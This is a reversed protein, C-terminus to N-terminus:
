SAQSTLLNQKLPHELVYPMTSPGARNKQLHSVGEKTLIILLLQSKEIFGKRISVVDEVVHNFHGLSPGLIELEAPM